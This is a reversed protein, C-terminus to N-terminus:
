DFRYQNETKAIEVNRESFNNEILNQITSVDFKISHSEQLIDAIIESSYGKQSYTKIKDILIVTEAGLNQYSDKMEDNAGAVAVMFPLGKQLAVQQSFGIALSAGQTIEGNRTEIYCLVAM